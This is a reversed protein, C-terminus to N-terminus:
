NPLDGLLLQDLRCTHKFFNYFLFLVSHSHPCWFFRLPGLALWGRPDTGTQSHSLISSVTVRCVKWKMLLPSNCELVAFNWFLYSIYIRPCLLYSYLQFFIVEEWFTTWSPTLFSDIAKKRDVEFPCNFIRTDNKFVSHLQLTILRPEKKKEVPKRWCKHYWIM